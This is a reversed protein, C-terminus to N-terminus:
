PTGTAKGEARRGSESPSATSGPPQTGATSGVDTSGSAGRGPSNTAAGADPSATPRPKPPSGSQRLTKARERNKEAKKPQGLQEYTEGLLKYIEPREPALLKAANLKEVATQLRNEEISERAAKLVRNVQVRQESSPNNAGANSEAGKPAEGPRDPASEGSSPAQASAAAGTSRAQSTTGIGPVLGAFDYVGFLQVGVGLAVFMLTFFIGYLVRDDFGEDDKEPLEYSDDAPTQSPQAGGEDPADVAPNAGTDGSAISQAFEEPDGDSLNGGGDTPASWDGSESPSPSGGNSGTSVAPQSQSGRRNSGSVASQSQSDRRQGGSVASQSQSDRRRDGSVASQSQSDRRQGGSVASQSRSERRRSQQSEEPPATQNRADPRGPSEPQDPGSSTDAAGGAFQPLEDLKYFHSGDSSVRYNERDSRDALWNNLAETEPFEYTLGSETQLKWPGDYDPDLAESELADASSPEATRGESAPEDVAGQSAAAGGQPESVRVDGSASDDRGERPSAHAPESGTDDSPSYTDLSPGANGSNTSESSPLADASRDSAADTSSSRQQASSESRASGGSGFAQDVIGQDVIDTAAEAIDEAADGASDIAEEAADDQMFSPLEDDSMVETSAAEEAEAGPVGEGGGVTVGTDNSTSPRPDNAGRSSASSTEASAEDSDDDPYVVFQHACKPCSIKGGSDPVKGDKVRYRSECEPCQVIM